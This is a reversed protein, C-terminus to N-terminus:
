ASEEQEIRIDMAQQMARLAATRTESDRYVCTPILALLDRSERLVAIQVDLRDPSIGLREPIFNVNSPGPLVDGVFPLLQQMVATPTMDVQSQRRIRMIMEGCREHVSDLVRLATLGVLICHLQVPEVSPGASRIDEGLARTLFAIRQAFGEAGLNKFITKYLRGLASASSVTARCFNRLEGAVQQDGCAQEDAEGPINPGAWVAVEQEATRQAKGTRDALQGPGERYLERAAPDLALDAYPPDTSGHGADLRINGYASNDGRVGRLLAEPDARNFYELREFCANFEENTSPCQALRERSIKREARKKVEMLESFGFTREEKAQELLTALTPPFGARDPM